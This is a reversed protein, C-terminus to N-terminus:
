PGIWGPNDSNVGGGGPQTPQLNPTFRYLVWLSTNAQDRFTAADFADWDYYEWMTLHINRGTDGAGIHTNVTDASDLFTAFAPFTTVPDPIGGDNGLVFFTGFVALSQALTNPHAAITHSVPGFSTAHQETPTYVGVPPGWVGVIGAVVRRSGFLTMTWTWSAPEAGAIKAWVNFVDGGTVVAQSGIQTWGAPATWGVGPFSYGIFAVLLDGPQSGPNPLTIASFSTPPGVPPPYLAVSDSAKFMTTVPGAGPPPRIWVDTM